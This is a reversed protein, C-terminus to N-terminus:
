KKLTYGVGLQATYEFQKYAGGSNSIRNMVGFDISYCITFRNFTILVQVPISILYSKFYENKIRGSKSAFSTKLFSNYSTSSLLIHNNLGIGLESYKSFRLFYLAGINLYNNSVLLNIKNLSNGAADTLQIDKSVISRKEGQVFLKIATRDNLKYKGYAGLFYGFAPGTQYSGQYNYKTSTRLATVNGGGEVGISLKQASLSTTILICVLFIVKKM